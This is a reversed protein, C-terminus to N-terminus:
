PHRLHKSVVARCHWARHQLRARADDDLPPRFILVPVIGHLETEDLEDLRLAHVLRQGAM